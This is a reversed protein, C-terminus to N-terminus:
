TQYYDFKKQLKCVKNFPHTGNVLQELEATSDGLYDYDYTLDVKQGLLGVRLENNIIGKRVRTNFLTAEFRANTGIMLVLDAEEVAAIGSNLM